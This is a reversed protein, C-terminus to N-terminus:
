LSALWAIGLVATHQCCLSLCLPLYLCLTIILILGVAVTPCVPVTLSYRLSCVTSCSCRSFMPGPLPCDTACRSFLRAGAVPLRRASSACVLLAHRYCVYTCVPTGVEVMCAYWVWLTSGVGTYLMCGDMGLELVVSSAYMCEQMCTLVIRANRCVRHTKATLGGTTSRPFM